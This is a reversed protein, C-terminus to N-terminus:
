LKNEKEHEIQIEKLQKWWKHPKEIFIQSAGLENVVLIVIQPIRVGTMEYYAAAYFSAQIFYNSIWDEKKEKSSGKFDIISPIGDFDAICDCRGAIKFYDSYLGVEQIQINSIQNLKPKLINFLIKYQTEYEGVFSIDENKLYREVMEHLNDGRIGARDREKNAAELGIRKQWKILSDKKQSGLITTISYYKNGEPTLYIRPGVGDVSIQKAQKKTDIKSPIHIFPM